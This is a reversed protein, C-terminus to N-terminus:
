SSLEARAAQAQCKALLDELVRRRRRRRGQILKYAVKSSQVELISNRKFCLVCKHKAHGREKGFWISLLRTREKATLDHSLFANTFATCDHFDKIADTIQKVCSQQIQTKCGPCELNERGGGVFWNILVNQEEVTLDKPNKLLLNGWKKFKGNKPDTYWGYMCDRQQNRTKGIRDNRDGEVEVHNIDDLKSMGLLLNIVSHKAQGYFSTDGPEQKYGDVAEKIANFDTPYDLEGGCGQVPCTRIKGDTDLKWKSLMEIDDQNIGWGNARHQKSVRNWFGM